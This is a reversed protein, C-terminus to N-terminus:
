VLEKQPLRQLDVLRTSDIQQPAGTAPPRVNGRLSDRKVMSRVLKELCIQPWEDVGFWMSESERAANLVGEFEAALGASWRSRRLGARIGLIINVKDHARQRDTAIFRNRQKAAAVALSYWGM